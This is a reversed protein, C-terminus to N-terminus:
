KKEGIKWNSRKKNAKRPIEEDRDDNKEILIKMELTNKLNRLDGESRLMDTTYLVMNNLTFYRIEELVKSVMWPPPSLAAKSNLYSVVEPVCVCRSLTVVAGGGLSLPSIKGVYYMSLSLVCGLSISDRRM